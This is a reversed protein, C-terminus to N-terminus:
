ARKRHRLRDYKQVHKQLGSAIRFPIPHPYGLLEGGITGSRYQVALHRLADMMHREWSKLPNDHYEPQEDTSLTENRKKRYGRAADIFTKCYPRNIEMLPWISRVAQIGDDFSHKPVANLNVGLEAAIDRMTKGTQASKENSGILDPGAYHDGFIYPKTQCVKAYYPIGQGQNDWYNDIIRIRGQIFQCFIVATYIDGIDLFAYVKAAPEFPYNGVRDSQEAEALERGYYTGERYDGFRGLVRYKYQNSHVGYKSRMRFEYNRGAVGPIVEEGEIFNPTDLVSIPIVNWGSGPQCAKYFDSMPDTPNGVALVKCNENIILGDMIAKWIQPLIGCAEDIIVFVWRNHFGQMKTAHESITDPSTSFGIAFNKEWLGRQSPELEALVEKRPKVNWMLSTLNGGLPVKAAAYATHIERWLINRVQNDSPATTIVTSPQFVTKFWVALRGATYSKSVDHGAPVATLQNDVVSQSVDEMKSWIHEPKVDLIDTMFGCPNERYGILREYIAQEQERETKTAM